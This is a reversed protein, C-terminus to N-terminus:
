QPQWDAQAEVAERTEAAGTLRVVHSGDIRMKFLDDGESFVIHGGEPSWAPSFKTEGGSTV